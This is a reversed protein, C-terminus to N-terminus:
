LAQSGLRSRKKESRLASIRQELEDLKLTFTWLAERNDQETIDREFKNAMVQFDVGFYNKGCDKGINTERGDKTVVIYGRNHPTKCNSLGCPVKEQFVYRGLISKLEHELPNLSVIFGARAIISDWDDVKTLGKETSLTIM